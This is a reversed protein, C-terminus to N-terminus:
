DPDDCEVLDVGDGGCATEFVVEAARCQLDADAEIMGTMLQTLTECATLFLAGLRPDDRPIRM